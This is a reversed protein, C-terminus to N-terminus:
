FQYLYLYCETYDDKQSSRIAVRDEDFWSLNGEDLADYGERDLVTFTGRTLDIVGLRAIGLSDAAYDYDAFLIKSGSPNPLFTSDWQTLSFGEVPTEQGTCLDLVMDGPRLKKLVYEVLTETDQRPILVRDDVAFSYGMFECSGMLYQLPIRQERERLVADLDRWAEEPVNRDPDMSYEARGIGLKWELLMWTEYEFDEIGAKQLRKQIKERVEKITM